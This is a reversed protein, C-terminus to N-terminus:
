FWLQFQSRLVIERKSSPSALYDAGANAPTGDPLYSVDLTFKAHNGWQGHPGFWNIGAAFEQFTGVGAIKSHSDLKSISYRGVIQLAPDLLYGGELLGGFNNVFGPLGKKLDRYDFYDGYGAAFISLKRAIQYQLDATYRIAQQAQASTYDIGAGLDLLDKKGSNVGTFDLTDAWDGFVKWDVRAAAGAYPPNTPPNAPSQPLTVSTGHPQGFTTLGSGYGDSLLLEAHLPNNKGLWLFDVGQVLNSPPAAGGVIAEAQSREALLQVNDGTFTEKFPIDKFQGARVAVDGAGAVNKLFTYQAWAYELTPAGGAVSDQWQFKYILDPTFLNGDFYFKARRIEFGLQTDGTDHKKAKERDNVVGRVQFIIGPHFYFSGDESGIFFQSKSKNWGASFSPADLFRSHRDADESARDLSAQLQAEQDARARAQQDAELQDIRARLSRIESDIDPQSTPTGALSPVPCAMLLLLLTTKQM